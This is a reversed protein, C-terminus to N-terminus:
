WYIVWTNNDLKQKEFAPDTLGVGSAIKNLVPIWNNAELESNTALALIGNEISKKQLYSYFRQFYNSIRETTEKTTSTENKSDKADGIFLYRKEDNVQIRLVDPQLNTIKCKQSYGKLVAWANLIKKIREHEQGSNDENLFEDFSNIKNM